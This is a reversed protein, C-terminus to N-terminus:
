AYCPIKQFGPFVDFNRGMWEVMYIQVPHTSIKINEKTELFIRAIRLIVNYLTIHNNKVEMTIFATQPWFHKLSCVSQCKLEINLEDLLAM